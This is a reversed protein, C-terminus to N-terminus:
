LLFDDPALDSRDVGVLRIEEDGVHLRVGSSPNRAEAIIERFGLDYRRLDIVDSGGFDRVTDVGGGAGFVFRDAGGSGVLLDDGADGYFSDSGRGGSLSDDGSGGRLVDARDGGSLVDGGAGGSIRDEGGLGQIRDWGGGGYLANAAANGAIRDSGSGGVANEILVGRFGDQARTLAGTVDDAITLGGRVSRVQSFGGSTTAEGEFRAPELSIHVPRAGSHRIQDIGGTDWITTWGTGASNSAPLRYVDNPDGDGDGDDRDLNAGYLHQVAAIDRATPTLFHGYTLKPRAELPRVHDLDAYGTRPDNEWDAYAMVTSLTSIDEVDGEVPSRGSSGEDFPHALGLFHGLEHLITLFGYGAPETGAATWSPRDRLYGGVAVPWDDKRFAEVPGEQFALMDWLPDDPDDTLDRTDSVALVLNVRNENQAPRFDVDAVEEWAAMGARFARGEWRTIPSSEEPYEGMLYDIRTTGRWTENEWRYGGNLIADIQQNESSAGSVPIALIFDGQPSSDLRANL